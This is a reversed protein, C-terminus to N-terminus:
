HALTPVTPSVPKVQQIQSLTAGSGVMNTAVPPLPASKNPNRKKNEEEKMMTLKLEKEAPENIDDFNVLNNMAKEIETKPKGDEETAGLALPANMSLSPQGPTAPAHGNATANVAGNVAGNPTNFNPQPVPAGPTAPMAGSSAYADMIQLLYDVIIRISLSLWYSAPYAFM